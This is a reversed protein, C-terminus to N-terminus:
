EMYEIIKYSGTKSNVILLNPSIGYSGNELDDYLQFAVYDGCVMTNGSATVSLRYINCDAHDVLMQKNSGDLEMSYVCGAYHDYYKEEEDIPSQYVLVPAEVSCLYLIKDEIVVYNDLDACLLEENETNEGIQKRYLARSNAEHYNTFTQYNKQLSYIYSGFVRGGIQVIETNQYAYDTTFEDGMDNYWCITEADHYLYYTRNEIPVCTLTDWTNTNINYRLLEAYFHKENVDYIRNWLYIYSEIRYFEDADLESYLTRTKGSAIDYARFTETDNDEYKCFYIKGDFAIISPNIRYFICDDSNHQCLPDDCLTTATGTEVNYKLLIDNWVAYIYNNEYANQSNGQSCATVVMALLVVVMIVFKKQLKKM